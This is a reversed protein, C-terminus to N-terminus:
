FTDEEQGNSYVKMKNNYINGCLKDYKKAISSIAFLTDIPLSGESMLTLIMCNHSTLQQNITLKKKNNRYKSVVEEFEYRLRLAEAIEQFSNM